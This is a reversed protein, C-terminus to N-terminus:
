WHRLRAQLFRIQVDGVGLQVDGVLLRGHNPRLGLDVVGLPFLIKLGLHERCAHARLVSAVAGLCDVVLSHRAQFRGLRLHFGRLGIEFRDLRLPLHRFGLFDGRRGLDGRGIRVQLVGLQIQIVGPDSRRDVAHHDRPVHVHTLRHLRRVRRRLQEADRLVEGLHVHLRVDVLGVDAANLHVLFGRERHVGIGSLGEAAGHHLDAVRGRVHLVDNGVRTTIATSLGSIFSNGPM